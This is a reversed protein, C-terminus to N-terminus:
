SEVGRLRDAVRIVEPVSISINVSPAQPADAHAAFTEAASKLLAKAAQTKDRPSSKIPQGQSDKGTAIQLLVILAAQYGEGEAVKLHAEAMKRKARVIPSTDDTTAPLAFRSM